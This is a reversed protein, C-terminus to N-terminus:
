TTPFEYVWYSQQDLRTDRVGGSFRHLLLRIASSMGLMEENYRCLDIAVIGDDAETLRYMSEILAAFVGSNDAGPLVAVLGCYWIRGEAYLHPWRRQFYEPSILPVAALDNTYTSLGRLECDDDLALHKGVRPDALVADFEHRHMVHRQVARYRLDDFVDAYLRWAEELRSGSVVEVIDIKM